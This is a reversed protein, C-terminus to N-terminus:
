VVPQGLLQLQSRLKIKLKEDIKEIDSSFMSYFQDSLNNIIREREQPTSNLVKKLELLYSKMETIVNHAQLTPIVKENHRKSQIWQGTATKFDGEVTGKINNRDWLANYIVLGVPHMDTRLQTVFKLQDAVTTYSELEAMVREQIHGLNYPKELNYVLNLQHRRGGSYYAYVNTDKSRKQYITRHARKKSDEYSKGKALNAKRGAKTGDIQWEFSAAKIVEQIISESQAGIESFGTAQNLPVSLNAIDKELLFINGYLTTGKYSVNTASLVKLWDEQHVIRLSGEIEELFDITEGGTLYSRMLYYVQTLQVYIENTQEDLENYLEKGTMVQNQKIKDQLVQNTIKSQLNNIINLIFDVKTQHEFNIGTIDPGFEKTAFDVFARIDSYDIIDSM